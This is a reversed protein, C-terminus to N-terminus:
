QALFIVTNPDFETKLTLPRNVFGFDKYLEYRQYLPTNVFVQELQPNNLAFRDYLKQLNKIYEGVGWMAIFCIESIGGIMFLLLSLNQDMFARYGTGRLSLMDDINQYNAWVRFDHLFDFLTYTTPKV